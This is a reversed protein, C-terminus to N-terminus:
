PRTAGERRSTETLTEGYAGAAADAAALWASITPDSGAAPCGESWSSCRSRGAVASFAPAPQPRAMRFVGGYFRGSQLGGSPSPATVLQVKGHTTDIVSGMRIISAGDLPQFAGAPEKILVIGSIPRLTATKGFAPPDIPVRFSWAGVQQGDVLWTVRYRGALTGVKIRNVYLTGPEARQADACLTKRTPFEVCVSYSVETASEIFAGFENRDGLHCLHSPATTKELGCGVYTLPAEAAESSSSLALAGCAVLSAGLLARLLLFPGAASVPSRAM